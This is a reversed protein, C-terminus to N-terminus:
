GFLTTGLVWVTLVIALLWAGVTIVTWVVDGDSGAREDDGAVREERTRSTLPM